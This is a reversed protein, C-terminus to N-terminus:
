DGGKKKVEKEKWNCLTKIYPPIKIGVGIKNRCCPFATVTCGLYPKIPTEATLDLDHASIWSVKPIVKFRLESVTENPGIDEYVWLIPNKKANPMTTLMELAEKLTISM